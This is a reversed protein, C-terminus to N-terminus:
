QFNSLRVILRQVCPSQCGCGISCNTLIEFRKQWHIMGRFRSMTTDISM